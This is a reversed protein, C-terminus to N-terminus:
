LKSDPTPSGSLKIIGFAVIGGCIATVLQPWSLMQSVTSVIQNNVLLGIIVTSMGYLFAFKLVSGIIVGAWFNFKSFYAFTLVLIANGAIIFPIMPALTPPLLGTALAFSSPILGILLGKRSGLLYVGVILSANVITGTIFQQKFILPAAVAICILLGLMLVSEKKIALTDFYNRM